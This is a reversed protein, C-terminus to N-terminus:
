VGLERYLLEGLIKAADLEQMPYDKLDKHITFLLKIPFKFIEGNSLDRYKAIAPLLSHEEPWIYILEDKPSKNFHKLVLGRDIIILDPNEADIASLQQNYPSFVVNGLAYRSYVSGRSTTATEAKLQLLYEVQPMSSIVLIKKDPNKEGATLAYCIASTTAGVGGAISGFIITKIKDTQNFVRM